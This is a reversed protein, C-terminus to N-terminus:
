KKTFRFGRLNHGGEFYYKFTHKGKTLSLTLKDEPTSVLQYAGWGGTAPTPITGTVNVGDVELHFSSASPGALLVDVKYDGADVVNITYLLWEGPNTYGVNSGGNGEVEVPTSGTDGNNRRYNDNGTNNGADADHFAYGEGGIDFNAAALEYPEAATLNHPGRFPLTNTVEVEIKKEIDGIKYIIKTVGASIATIEGEKNVIAVDKNESSWSYNKPVDNTNNPVYTVSISKKTGRLLVLETQTLSVDELPIRVTATLNVKTSLNGSSVVIDTTGEGVVQVLGGSTVTAVKTDESSWNYTGELPSATLQIQEGVFLSLSQRNVYINTEEEIVDYKYCGSLSGLFFLWLTIKVFKDKM